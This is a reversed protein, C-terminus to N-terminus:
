WEPVLSPPPTRADRIRVRRGDLVLRGEAYLQIAQPYLEHEVALIRRAVTAADDDPGIAVAGQLIIPGHDVEEDVFHVTAGAIRVGYEAAQRQAHLGKFAPLLAPHINMVRGPFAGLLVPTVLRDFGALVVLEVGRARLVEIVRREFPERGMFARHDVVETPVGAAAARELAKAGPRNSIVVAIRCALRGAAIRELIAQLNTGSGSVLVGATVM